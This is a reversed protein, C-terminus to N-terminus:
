LEERQIEVAVFQTDTLVFKKVTVKVSKAGFNRLVLQGTEEALTELM